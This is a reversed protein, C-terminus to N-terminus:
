VTSLQHVATSHIDWWWVIICWTFAICILNSLMIAVVMVYLAAYQVRGWMKNPREPSPSLHQMNGGHQCVVDGSLQELSELWYCVQFLCSHKETWPLSETWKFHLGSAPTQTTFMWMSYWCNSLCQVTTVVIDPSQKALAWSLWPVM